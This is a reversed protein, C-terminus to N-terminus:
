CKHKIEIYPANLLSESYIYKEMDFFMCKKCKQQKSKFGDFAKLTNKISKLVERLHCM